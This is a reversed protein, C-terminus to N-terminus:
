SGFVVRNAERLPRSSQMEPEKETSHASPGVFAEECDRGQAEAHSPDTCVGM